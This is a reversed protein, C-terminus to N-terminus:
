FFIANLECFTQLHVLFNQPLCNFHHLTHIVCLEHLNYILRWERLMKELELSLMMHVKFIAFPDVSRGKSM